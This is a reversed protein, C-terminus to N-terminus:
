SVLRLRPHAARYADIARNSLALRRREGQGMMHAIKQALFWCAANPDQLDGSMQLVNWAINVSQEFLAEDSM